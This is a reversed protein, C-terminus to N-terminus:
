RPEKKERKVPMNDALMNVLAFGNMKFGIRAKGDAFEFVIMQLKYGDAPQLRNYVKIYRLVKLNNWDLFKGNKTALGKSDLTAILEGTRKRVLLFFFVLFAVLIIPFVLYVFNPEGKDSSVLFQSFSGYALFGFILLLFLGAVKQATSMGAYGTITITTKIHQSCWESLKVQQEM